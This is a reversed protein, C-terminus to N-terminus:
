DRPSPSTYLLCHYSQETGAFRIFCEELTGSVDVYVVKVFVNNTRIALQGGEPSKSGTYINTTSQLYLDSSQLYLSADSALNFNTWRPFSTSTSPQVAGLGTTPDPDTETVTVVAPDNKELILESCIGSYSGKPQGIRFDQSFPHIRAFWDEGQELGTYSISQNYQHYDLAVYQSEPLSVTNSFIDGSQNQLLQNDVPSRWGILKGQNNVEPKNPTFGMRWNCRQGTSETPIPNLYKIYSIPGSVANPSAAIANRQSLRCDFTDTSYNGFFDAPPFPETDTNAVIKTPDLKRQYALEYRDGQKYMLLNATDMAGAGNGSVNTLTKGIYTNWLKTFILKSYTDGTIMQYKYQDDSGTAIFTPQFRLVTGQPIGNGTADGQATDLVLDYNSGNATISSIRSEFFVNNPVDELLYDGPRLYNVNDATVTVTTSQDATVTATTVTIEDLTITDSPGNTPLKKFKRTIGNQGATINPMYVFANGRCATCKTFNLEAFGNATISIQKPIIIKKNPISVGGGSVINTKPYIGMLTTYSGSASLSKTDSTESFVNVTGEDGGDIYMSTGYKYLLQPSELDPAQGDGIRVEYKFRFFPDGM